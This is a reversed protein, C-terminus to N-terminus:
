ASRITTITSQQAVNGFHLSNAKDTNNIITFPKKKQFEGIPQYALLAPNQKKHDRQVVPYPQPQHVLRRLPEQVM